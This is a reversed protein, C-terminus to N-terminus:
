SAPSLSYKGIIDRLEFLRQAIAGLSQNILDPKLEEIIQLYHIKWFIKNFYNQNFQNIAPLLINNHSIPM